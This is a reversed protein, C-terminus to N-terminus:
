FTGSGANTRSGSKSGVFFVNFYDNLTPKYTCISVGLKKVRQAVDNWLAEVMGNRIIRGFDGEAMVRTSLM